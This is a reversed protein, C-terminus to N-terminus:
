CCSLCTLTVITVICERDYDDFAAEGGCTWFYPEESPIIKLVIKASYSDM